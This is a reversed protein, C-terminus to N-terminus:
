TSVWGNTLTATKGASPTYVVDYTGAGPATFSLLLTNSNVYTITASNGGVKVGGSFVGGALDYQFGTGILVANVTGGGAATAPTISRLTLTALQATLFDAIGTMASSALAATPYNYTDKTGNPYSIVIATGQQQIKMGMAFNVLTGDPM